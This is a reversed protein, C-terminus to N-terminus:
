PKASTTPPTSRCAWTTSSCSWVATPGNAAQSPSAPLRLAPRHPLLRMAIFPRSAPVWDFHTIKQEVGDEYIRFDNKTLGAVHKGSSDTVVADVQVLTVTVKVTPSPQALAVLSWFGLVAAFRM